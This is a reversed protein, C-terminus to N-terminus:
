TAERRRKAAEALLSKLQPVGLLLMMLFWDMTGRFAVNGLVTLGALLALEWLRFRRFRLIVVALAMAAALYILTVQLPASAFMNVLPQMEGFIRMIPHKLEPQFPYLLREIPDPSIFSAMVGVGGIITLRKLKERDLPPNWRLWQNLWECAIAGYLLGIGLIIGPHVNAWILMVLPLAWPLPKKGACHNHLMITVLLLGITTCYLPRLNWASSLAFVAAFIALAIGHRRVGQNHLHRAVLLLPTIVLIVKLFKLGGYGLPEWIEWLLVEYLWEFDHIPSDAITYSFSEPLRLSGTHVILGGTRVQWSWDLDGFTSFYTSALLLIIILSVVTPRLIPVRMAKHM